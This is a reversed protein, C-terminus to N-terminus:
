YTNDNYQNERFWHRWKEPLICGFVFLSHFEFCIYLLMEKSISGRWTESAYDFAEVFINFLQYWVCSWACLALHECSIYGCCLTCALNEQCFKPIVLNGCCSLTCVILACCEQFQDIVQEWPSQDKEMFVYM